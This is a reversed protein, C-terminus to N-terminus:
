QQRKVLKRVFKDVGLRVLLMRVHYYTANLLTQLRLISRWRHNPIFYVIAAEDSKNCFTRKYPLDGFGFDWVNVGHDAHIDELIRYTLVIGPSSAAYQQRYATGHSHLVGRYQFGHKFAMPEDGRLLVYSRLWGLAAVQELLRQRAESNERVGGFTKAQWSDAHICDMWDLLQGVDRRETIRVLRATSDSFFKRCHRRVMRRSDSSMGELFAEVSDARRLQHIKEPRMAVMKWNSQSALANDELASQWFRESPKLGYMQLYDASARESRLFRAVAAVCIGPDIDNAVVINEGFIRFKRAPLSFLRWVSFEFSFSKQEVYCPAVCVLRGAFSVLLIKLQLSPQEQLTLAIM